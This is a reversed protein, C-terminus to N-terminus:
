EDDDEGQDLFQKWAEGLTLNLKDSDPKLTSM